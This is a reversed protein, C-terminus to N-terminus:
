GKPSLGTTEEIEVVELLDHESMQEPLLGAQEDAAVQRARAM